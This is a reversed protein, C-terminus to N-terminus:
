FEDIIEVTSYAFPSQDIQMQLVRRFNNLEREEIVKQLTTKGAYGKQLIIEIADDIGTWESRPLTVRRFNFLPEATKCLM